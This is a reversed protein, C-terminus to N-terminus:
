HGAASTNAALAAAEASAAAEKAATQAADAAAEAKAAAGILNRGTTVMQMFGLTFGLSAAAIMSAALSYQYLIVRRGAESGAVTRTMSSFWDAIDAGNAVALVFAAGTVWNGFVGLRQAWGRENAKETSKDGGELGPAGVLFGAFAGGAASALVLTLFAGFDAGSRSVLLGAGLVAAAIAIGLIAAPFPSISPRDSEAQRAQTPSDAKSLVTSSM